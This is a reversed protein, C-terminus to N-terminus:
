CDKKPSPRCTTVRAWASPSIITARITDQLFGSYENTDPHSSQSGFNQIYYKPVDHAYARLPTLLLGAEQPEFTFPDVKILDFIYEGGAQAPFYNYIWTLLRM